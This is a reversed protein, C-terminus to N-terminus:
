FEDQLNGPVQLLLCWRRGGEDCLLMKFLKIM